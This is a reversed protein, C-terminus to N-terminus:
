FLFGVSLSFVRNKYKDNDNNSSGPAINTLGLGYNANFTFHHIEVGALFNLGWDYRKINGSNNSGNSGNAPDDDGFKINSEDSFSAGLVEGSVTKKGAIGMAVYPGAGFFINTHPALPIKGVANVPLELYIPNTKTEIWNDGNKDGSTFKVGKGEFMLGPQISFVPALPIDLYAGVNFSSLANKDQVTGDTTVTMNANNYGGKIGIGLEQASAIFAGAMFPIALLIRKM